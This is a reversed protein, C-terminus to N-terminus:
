PSAPCLEPALSTKRHGRCACVAPRLPSPGSGPQSPFCRNQAAAPNGLYTVAEKYDRPDLFVLQELCGTSGGADGCGHSGLCEGSDRWTRTPPVGAGAPSTPPCNPVGSCGSGYGPTRSEASPSMGRTMGSTPHAPPAKGGGQEQGPTAGPELSQGPATQLRICRKGKALPPPHGRPTYRPTRHRVGRRVGYVRMRRSRRPWSPGLEGELPVPSRAFGGCRRPPRLWPRPMGWPRSPAPTPPILQLRAEGGRLWPHVHRLTGVALGVNHCGPLPCTARAGGKAQGWTQQSTTLWSGTDPTLPAAGCSQKGTVGGAEGVGDGDRDGGVAGLSWRLLRHPSLDGRLGPQGGVHRLRACLLPDGLVGSPGRLSPQTPAVGAAHGWWPGGPVAALGHRPCCRQRPAKNQAPRGAPLCFPCDSAPPANHRCGHASAAARAAAVSAEHGGGLPGPRRGGHCGPAQLGGQPLWAAPFPSRSM